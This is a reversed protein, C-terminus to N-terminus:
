YLPNYTVELMNPKTRSELVEKLKEQDMENDSIETPLAPMTIGRRTKKIGAHPGKGPKKTNSDVEPSIGKLGKRMNCVEYRMAIAWSSHGGPSSDRLFPYEHILSFCINDLDKAKPYLTYQTVSACLASIIKRKVHEPPSVSSKESKHKKLFLSVTMDIDHFKPLPFVEPWKKCPSTSSTGPSMELENSRARQKPTEPLISTNEECTSDKAVIKLTSFNTIDSFSQVNCYDSFDSDLYQVVFSKCSLNSSFKECILAKLKDVCDIEQPVHLKCILSDSLHMAMTAFTLIGITEGLRQM